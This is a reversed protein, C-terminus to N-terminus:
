KSHFEYVGDWGAPPPTHRYEEIRQLFVAYLRQGPQAQVLRHLLAEAAEWQQQRYHALAQEFLQVEEATRTPLPSGAAPQPEFIRVPEHKGKVNVQDLECYHSQSAAKVTTESVIMSVGYQKTLGELRSGLNVADGMATYARRFQSGMNGVSMIGTNVGIGIRLEPWGRQKFESQLRQLRELMALGADVAHQAHQPDNLPAGWFAMIADGMYKDITGRYRHIIETMATLYTNLIDTLEQPTLKESISTFDRIDSFLVTMERSDSQMSVQELHQSMENVLQPPVYQGFLESILHRNRSEVFYGYAVDFVYILIVLSLSAALPLVLHKYQWAWLNGGVILGLLLLTLLTSKLPSLRPLLVTLLLGSVLLTLIEIAIDYKPMQLINQELMGAIVNAHIEVGPYVSGVPTVRLDKLGPATTGVLVIKGALANAPLRQHMVDTASVYLFSGQEGRYPVLARGYQDVPVTMDGIALGELAQYSGDSSRPIVFDVPPEGLAARLLALSLSQYVQGGYEILMPIRRVVGDIDTSPNFHGGNEAAQQLQPLNAGYGNARNLHIGLQEFPTAPALPAPLMGVHRRTGDAATTFYYGLVVPHNKLSAAFLADRDLQPTIHQLAQQYQSDKRLTTAGLQQLVSLGSSDDKEAFVIDFGLAAVQYRDFLTKVLVALRDRGWPFRGEEALSKEDIDVIAVGDFRKQPMTLRVRMDYSIAELRQLLPLHVWGLTNLLFLALLTLTACIRILTHPM